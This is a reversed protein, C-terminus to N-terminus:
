EIRNEKIFNIVHQDLLNEAQSVRICSGLDGVESLFSFKLTCEDAEAMDVKAHVGHSAEGYFAAILVQFALGLGAEFTCSITVDGEPDSFYMCSLSLLSPKVVMRSRRSVTDLSSHSTGLLAAKADSGELEVLTEDLAIPIRQWLPSKDMLEQYGVGRVHGGAPSGDFNVPFKLPEEVYEIASVADHSLTAAFQTAQSISWSQNADLRLWHSGKQTNAVLENVKSADSQWCVGDVDGVKMKLVQRRTVDSSLSVDKGDRMSAFGNIRVHSSRQTRARGIFSGVCDTLSIGVLQALAHMICQEFGYAVPAVCHNPYLARVTRAVSDSCNTIEFLRGELCSSIADIDEAMSDYTVDVADAARHRRDPVRFVPEYVEGVGVATKKDGDSVTVVILHIRYGRRTPFAKSQGNTLVILPTKLVIEFPTVLVKSVMGRVLYPSDPIARTALLSRVATVITDMSSEVPVIHGCLPIATLERCTGKEIAQQGLHLYKDDLTGVLMLDVTADTSAATCIMNRLSHDIPIVSRMRRELLEDFASPLRKKIESFTPLSYWSHLFMLASARTDFRSELTDVQSSEWISLAANEIGGSLPKGPCTGMTLLARVDDPFLSRYQMGLRGGQSYGVILLQKDTKLEGRIISRLARCFLSPSLIDGGSAVTLIHFGEQGQTAISTKGRSCSSRHLSDIVEAWDEQGGMWGHLLVVMPLDSTVSSEDNMKHLTWSIQKAVLATLEDELVTALQKSMSRHLAVNEIHSPLSSCEIFFVSSDDLAARLEAASTVRECRLTPSCGSLASAIRSLDLSHPTDLFPSFFDNRYESAPLFSFIAGGSNNVCVIKGVRGGGMVSLYGLSGPSAGAAIAIASVDHLTAVDGVLVTVPRADSSCGYAYGVASSIVGDIGNAGRNCGVRRTGENACGKLDNYLGTFGDFDRCAMSSSLFVPCCGDGESQLIMAIQPESFSTLEEEKLLSRLSRTHINNALRMIKLASCVREDRKLLGKSITGTVIKTMQKSFEAVSAHLYTDAIWTSDHRCSEFGDDRVRVITALPLRSMWDLTRVSIMSGGIRFVIRTTAALADGLLPSNLLRDMGLFVCDNGNGSSTMMSMTDCICPIKLTECMWRLDIADRLSHLEGVIVVVSWCPWENQFWKQMRSVVNNSASFFSSMSLHRTYPQMTSMWRTVKPHLTDVFTKAFDEEVLVPDLESKRLQFNLHVRQGRRVAIEGIGFSIDSLISGILYASLKPSESCPPPFDKEYEVLGSFIGVQRITQAEGVERSESPRDATLLVIPLASERAESMAPLLNSVATGSTVLVVCLVGARSCGLAYFGAAREDHVVQTMGRAVSNRYIAVAFPISRAGPCVCFAGVGQRLMEEIVIAAVASTANPFELGMAPRRSASLIRIYQSMKLEIEKYEADPVSGQVLGAGAYIHVSNKHVVASRLGVLLEGIDHGLVGCYSSYLGRKFKEMSAISKMAAEVPMGCVAPTPHLNRVAWEVLSLGSAEEKISKTSIVQRFHAVDSMQLLEKQEVICDGLTSLKSVIFDSVTGHERITKNDVATGGSEIYKSAYTGALADTSIFAGNVYCLAEPSLCIFVEENLGWPAFLFTYRKGEDSRNGNAVALLLTAPNIPCQTTGTKRLAYVVKLLSGEMMQTTASEVAHLYESESMGTDKMKEVLPPLQCLSTMSCRFEWVMISLINKIATLQLQLIGSKDECSPILINLALMAFPWELVGLKAKNENAALPRGSRVEVQPVIWGSLKSTESNDFSEGGIALIEDSMNSSLGRVADIADSRLCCGYGLVGTLGERSVFLVREVSPLNHGNHSLNSLLSSSISTGAEADVRCKSRIRIVNGEKLNNSSIWQLSIGEIHELLLSAACDVSCVTGGSHGEIALEFTLSNVSTFVFHSMRSTEGPREM